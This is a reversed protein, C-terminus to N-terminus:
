LDKRSYQFSVLWRVEALVLIQWLYMIQPLYNVVAAVKWRRGSALM